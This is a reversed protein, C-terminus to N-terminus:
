AERISVLDLMDDVMKRYKYKLYSRKNKIYSIKDHLFTQVVGRMMEEHKYGNAILENERDKIAHSKELYENLEDIKYRKVTDYYESHEDYFEEMINEHQLLQKLIKSEPEIKQVIHYADNIFDICHKLHEIYEKYKIVRMGCEDILLKTENM